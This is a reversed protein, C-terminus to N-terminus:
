RANGDRVPVEGVTPLCPVVLPHVERKTEDDSM